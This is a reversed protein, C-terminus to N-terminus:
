SPSREATLRELNAKLKLDYVREFRYIAESLLNGTKKQVRTNPNVFEWVITGKADMQLVRGKDSEVILLLKTASGRAGSSFSVPYSNTDWEVKETTADLIIARSGNPHKPRNDFIIITGDPLLQPHHQRRIEGPGL